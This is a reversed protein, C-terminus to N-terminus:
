RKTEPKSRQGVSPLPERNAFEAAAANRNLPPDSRSDRATPAAATRRGRGCAAQEVQKARRCAAPGTAVIGSATTGLYVM